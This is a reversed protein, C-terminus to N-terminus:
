RAIERIKTWYGPAPKSINWKRCLRGIANDTVGFQKGLETTPKEWVLKALEEKTASIKGTYINPDKKIKEKIAKIHIIGRRTEQIKRNKSGYTLTQSHCNPCIIRLNELRNDYRDGNIHDLQLGVPKGLWDTLGCIYCKNELIGTRLLKGRLRCSEIVRGEKLFSHVDVVKEGKQKKQFHTVDLHLREIYQKITKANTSTVTLRLRRLIQSISGSEKVANILELESWTKRSANFEAQTKFHSIDLRLEEVRKRIRNATDQNVFLGLNRMVAAYCNSKRIAEVLSEDTWTRM